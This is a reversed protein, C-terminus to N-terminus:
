RSALHTDQVDAGDAPMWVIRDGDRTGSAEITGVPVELAYAARWHWRTREGPPLEPYLAVVCGKRDLFVVDLPFTMGYMHVARCPKMMLGEGPEPEPRGMFGRARALYSDALEIRGGLISERSKNM